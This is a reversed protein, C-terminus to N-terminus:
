ELAAKFGRDLIFWPLWWPKKRIQIWCEWHHFPRVISVPSRLIDCKVLAMTGACRGIFYWTEVGNVLKEETVEVGAKTCIM